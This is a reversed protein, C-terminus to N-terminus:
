RIIYDTAPIVGAEYKSDPSWVGSASQGSIGDARVGALPCNREKVYNFMFREQGKIFGYHYHVGPNAPDSSCDTEFVQGYKWGVAHAEYKTATGLQFYMYLSSDDEKIQRDTVASGGIFHFTYPRDQTSANINTTLGITAIAMAAMATTILKKKM